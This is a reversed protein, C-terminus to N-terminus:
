NRRAAARTLRDRIAPALGESGNPIESHLRAWAESDMARLVGFLRHAIAELEGRESLWRVRNAAVKASVVGFAASKEPRRLLLVAENEPLQELIGADIRTHLTLPTHPSYHQTLMGPAPAAEGIDLCAPPPRLVTQGLVGEITEVPLGGPRLLLPRTPHTLDIITSEVGVTCEGGQLISRLGSGTLGERVHLATTPSIYGFPNASPAALPRGVLRILRRFLPHAPVRVAVTAKGATVLDPVEARKPLVLTLPGPWCASALAYATPSAVAVSDLERSSALHVILPDTSPRGKAAFIRKCAEASLADAALGYVTESPVGVIGGSRLVAALRALNAPTPRFIRPRFAPLAGSQDADVKPRPM